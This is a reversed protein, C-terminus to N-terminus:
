VNLLECRKTTYNLQANQRIMKQKSLSEIVPQEERLLCVLKLFSSSINITALVILCAM